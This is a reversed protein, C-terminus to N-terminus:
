GSCGPVTLTLLRGSILTFEGGNAEGGWALVASTGSSRGGGGVTRGGSASLAYEQINPPSSSLFSSLPSHFLLSRSGSVVGCFAGEDNKSSWRRLRPKRKPSSVSRTSSGANFTTLLFPLACLFCAEVAEVFTIVPSASSTTNPMSSKFCQNISQMVWRIPERSKMRTPCHSPKSSMSESHSIILLNPIVTLSKIRAYSQPELERHKQNFM